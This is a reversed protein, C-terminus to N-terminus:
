PSRLMAQVAALVREGEARLPWLGPAVAAGAGARLSAEITACAGAFDQAGVSASSSKLTHALREVAQWDGAAGAADLAALARALAGEYTRLVRSLVQQRGGPDLERLRQLAAEDLVLAPGAQTPPAEAPSEENSTMAHSRFM